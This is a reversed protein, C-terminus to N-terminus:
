IRRDKMLISKHFSMFFFLMLVIIPNIIFITCYFLVLNNQSTNTLMGTIFIDYTNEVFITIFFAGISILWQVIIILVQNRKSVSDDMVLHYYNAMYTCNFLVGVFLNMIDDEPVFAYTVFTVLVGCCVGKIHEYRLKYDKYDEVLIDGVLEPRAILYYCLPLVTFAVNFFFIIFTTYEQGVFMYSGKYVMINAALM